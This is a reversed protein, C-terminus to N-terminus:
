AIGQAQTRKWEQKLLGFLLGDQWEDHQRYHERLCGERQFGLGELLRLAPRNRPDVDATIRHLNLKRFGYRLVATAAEVAFGKEHQAAELLLGLEARRHRRHLSALTCTGILDDADGRAIGWQLLTGSLAGAQIEDLLTEAAARDPLAPHGWYRTLERDGFLCFLADGDAATIHRLVLRPTQLTPIPM